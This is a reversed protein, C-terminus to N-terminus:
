YRNYLTVTWAKDSLDPVTVEDGDFLEECAIEQLCSRNKSFVAVKLPINSDTSSITHYWFRGRRGTHETAFLPLLGGGDGKLLGIQGSPTGFINQSLRPPSTLRRIEPCDDTWMQPERVYYNTTHNTAVSPAGTKEISPATTEYWWKAGLATVAVATGLMLAITGGSIDSGM